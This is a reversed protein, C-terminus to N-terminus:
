KVTLADAEKSGLANGYLFGTQRDVAVLSKGLSPDAETSVDSRCTNYAWDLQMM